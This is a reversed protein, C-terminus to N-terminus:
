KANETVVGSKSKNILALAEDDLCVNKYVPRDIIKLKEQIITRENAQLTALKEELQKSIVIQAEKVAKQSALNKSDEYWGRVFWGSAVLALTLIAVLAYRLINVSLM